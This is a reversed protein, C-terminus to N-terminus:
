CELTVRKQNYQNEKNSRTIWLSLSLSKFDKKEKMGLIILLM